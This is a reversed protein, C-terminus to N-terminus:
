PWQTPAGTTLILAFPEGITLTFDTSPNGPQYAQYSQTEIRYRMLYLVGTGIDSVVESAKTLNGKDL